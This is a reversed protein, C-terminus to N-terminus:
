KRKRSEQWATGMGFALLSPHLARWAKEKKERERERLRNQKNKNNKSPTRKGPRCGRLQVVGHVLVLEGGGVLVVSVKELRVLYTVLESGLKYSTCIELTKISDM